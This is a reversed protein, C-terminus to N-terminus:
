GRCKHRPSMRHLPGRITEGRTKRNCAGAAALLLPLPLLVVM